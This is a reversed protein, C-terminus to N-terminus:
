CSALMLSSLIVTRRDMKGTFSLRPKVLEDAIAEALSYRYIVKDEDAPDPTATLGVLARPNLDACLRPSNKLKHGTSMINM